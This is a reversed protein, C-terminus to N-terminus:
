HLISLQYHPIEQYGMFDRSFQVIRGESTQLNRPCHMWGGTQRVMLPTKQLCYLCLFRETKLICNENSM